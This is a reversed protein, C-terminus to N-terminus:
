LYCDGSDQVAERSQGGDIDVCAQPWEATGEFGGGCGAHFPLRGVNPTSVLVSDTVSVLDSLGRESVSGRWRAGKRRQSTTKASAAARENEKRCDFLAQRRSVCGDITGIASRQGDEVAVCQMQRGEQQIGTDSQSAVKEQGQQFGEVSNSAM